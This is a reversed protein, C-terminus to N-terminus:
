SRSELIHELREVLAVAEEFNISVAIEYARDLTDFCIRSNMAKLTEHVANYRLLLNDYDVSAM